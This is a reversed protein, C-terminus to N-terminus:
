CSTVEEPRFRRVAEYLVQAGREIDALETYEQPNHSIGGRSPVFLMAAPAIKAVYMADHGARSYMPHYPVGLASCADALLSVIQPHLAVPEEESLAHTEIEIGRLNQVRKALRFFRDVTRRKSEADVSRIDIGLDVQGPVVNISVPHLAFVTATAVTLGAETEAIEELGLILEAAATLGDKRMGMLAAGSHAAEGKVIVKYRSPAAIRSVVGLRLGARGLELGQEVHLEIFGGIPGFAAPGGVLDYGAHQRCADAFTIDDRDTLGFLKETSLVGALGKSGLTAVGWRSSEEATFSVVGVPFDPLGGDERLARIVELSAVVGVVGDYRGGTPVSDLHSGLLLAPRDWDGLV